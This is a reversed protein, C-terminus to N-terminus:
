RKVTKPVLQCGENVRRRPRYKVIVTPKGPLAQSLLPAFFNAWKASGGKESFPITWEVTKGALNTQAGAVTTVGVPAILVAGFAAYRICKKLESM